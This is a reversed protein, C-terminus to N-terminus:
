SNTKFHSVICGFHQLTVLARDVPILIQKFLSIRESELIKIKKISKKKVKYVKEFLQVCV